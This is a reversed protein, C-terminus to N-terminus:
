NQTASAQLVNEKLFAKFAQPQAFRYTQELNLQNLRLVSVDDQNLQGLGLNELGADEEILAVRFAFDRMKPLAFLATVFGPMGSIDAVYILNHASVDTVKLETFVDKVMGGAAKSQSVVLWQTQSSLPLPEEWQDAFTHAPLITTTNQGDDNAQVGILGTFLGLWALSLTMLLQKVM